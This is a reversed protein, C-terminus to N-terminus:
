DFDSFKVSSLGKNIGFFELIFNDKKKRHLHNDSNKVHLYVVCGKPTALSWM